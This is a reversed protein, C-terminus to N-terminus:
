ESDDERVEYTRTWTAGCRCHSHEVLEGHETVALGRTIRVHVHQPM